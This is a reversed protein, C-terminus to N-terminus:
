QEDGEKQPAEQKAGEAEVPKNKKKNKLLTLVTFVGLGLTTTAFVSALIIWLTDNGTNLRIEDAFNIDNNGPDYIVVTETEIITEPAENDACVYLPSTNTMSFDDLEMYAYGTNCIAFYGNLELGECRYYKTFEAEGNLKIYMEIADGYSIFRICVYKSEEINEQMGEQGYAIDRFYKTPIGKNLTVRANEMDVPYMALPHTYINTYTFESDDTYTMNFMLTAYNGYNTATKSKRSLDFGLWKGPGTHETNDMGPTGVYISCLKFDMIFADYQHASGFFTGDSCGEYKLKGNKASLDGNGTHVVYFDEYGENGFFNNSFNHTVSKTVPVYYTNTKVVIDDLHVVHTINALAVFGFKGTYKENGESTLVEEGNAFLHITGNKVVILQFNVGDSSTMGSVIKGDDSVEVGDVFIRIVVRNKNFEIYAGNQDIPSDASDLGFVFAVKEDSTASNIFAVNFKADIVNVTTAMSTEEAIAVKSILRDASTAGDGVDLTSNGALVYAPDIDPKTFNALMGYEEDFTEFSDNLEYPVLEQMANKVKGKIKVNDYKAGRISQTVVTEAQIGIQCNKFNMAGTSNHTLTLAKSEDFDADEQLKLLLKAQTANQPEVRLTIWINNIPSVGFQDTLSTQGSIECDSIYQTEGKATHTAPDNIAWIGSNAIFAVNADYALKGIEETTILNKLFKFSIWHNQGATANPLVFDIQFYELDYIMERTGFFAYEGGSKTSGTNEIYSDTTASQRINEGVADWKTNDFSEKYDRNNFNDTLVTQTRCGADAVLLNPNIASGILAMVTVGLGM